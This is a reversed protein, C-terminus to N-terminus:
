GRHHQTMENRHPMQDLSLTGPCLFAEGLGAVQRFLPTVLLNSADQVGVKQMAWVEKGRPKALPKLLLDFTLSWTHKGGRVGQKLMVATRSIATIEELQSKGQNGGRM